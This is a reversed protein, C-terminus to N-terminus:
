INFEDEPKVSKSNCTALFNHYENAAYEFDKKADQFRKLLYFDGFGDLENIEKYVKMYNNSALSFNKSLENYKDQFTVM